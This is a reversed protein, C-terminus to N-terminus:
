MGKLQKMKSRSMGAKLIEPLLIPKKIYIASAKPYIPLTPTNSPFLKKVGSTFHNSKMKFRAIYTAIKPVNM